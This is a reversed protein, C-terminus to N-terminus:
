KMRIIAMQGRIDRIDRNQTTDTMEQKHDRDKMASMIRGESDKVTNVIGMWALMVFVIASGVSGVIWIIIRATIGKISTDLIDMEQM